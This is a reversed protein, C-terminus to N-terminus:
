ATAFAPTMWSVLASPSSSAKLPTRTLAMAGPQITVSM